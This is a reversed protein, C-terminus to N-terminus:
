HISIKETYLIRILIINSTLTMLHFSHILLLPKVKGKLLNGTFRIMPFVSTRIKKASTLELIHLFSWDRYGNWPKDFNLVKPHFAQKDGYSSTIDLKSRSLKQEWSKSIKVPKDLDAQTHKPVCSTTIVLLSLIMVLAISKNKKLM